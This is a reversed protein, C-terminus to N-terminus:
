KKMWIQNASDKNYIENYLRDILCNTYKVLYYSDAKIMMEHPKQFWNCFHTDQYSNLIEDIVIYPELLDKKDHWELAPKANDNELEIDEKTPYNQNFRKKSDEDNINAPYQNWDEGSITSCRGHLYLFLDNIKNSWLYKFDGIPFIIYKDGYTELFDLEGNHVYLADTRAKWNFKQNFKEDMYEVITYPTNRSKSKSKHKFEVAGKSFTKDAISKPTQQTNHYIFGREGNAFDSKLNCARLQRIFPMCNTMIDNVVKDIQEPNECIPIPVGEPYIEEYRKLYKM